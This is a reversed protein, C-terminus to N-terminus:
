LIRSREYGFGSGMGSSIGLGTGIGISGLGPGFGPGVGPGYGTGDNPETGYLKWSEFNNPIHHPLESLFHKKTGDQKKENGSRCLNPNRQCKLDDM